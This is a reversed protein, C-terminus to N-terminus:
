ASSASASVTLLGVTRKSWHFFELDIEPLTDPFQLNDILLVSDFLGQERVRLTAPDSSRILMRRQRVLALCVDGDLRDRFNL